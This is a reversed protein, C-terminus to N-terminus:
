KKPPSNTVSARNAWQQLQSSVIQKLPQRGMSIISQRRISLCFEEVEAFSTDGLKKAISHHPVGLSDGMDREFRALYDTIQNASPGPLTLKLQFRRWAARDLLEPHNTAAILVTYSPLDDIQMLLTSVVRKIEGSDHTDGREKGIADFEDFFLVCPTMRAYDLVRRLRAATEGLYSGILYEYRVVFFNAMLASAIAEALATKGNGPPGVLLVRHRPEVAHSRLLEAHSQEELLAKVAERCTDTLILDELRRRPKVDAIYDRGRIAPVTPVLNAAVGGNTPTSGLAEVLRDALSNHQRSREEAIIAEVSARVGKRDGTASARVLSVLLDSRAM